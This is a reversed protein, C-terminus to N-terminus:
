TEQAVAPAELAAGGQHHAAFREAVEPGGRVLAIARLESVLQNALTLENVARQATESLVQNERELKSAYWGPVLAKIILLVVVVGCVGGGTVLATSWTSDLLM